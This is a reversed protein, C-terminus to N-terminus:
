DQHDQIINKGINIIRADLVDFSDAMMRYHEIWTKLNHKLTQNCDILNGSLDETTVYLNINRKFSDKDVDVRCRKIGGFKAPMSYTMAKYDQITVARNQSAFQNKARIIIENSDPIELDGIIQQPNYVEVSSIVRQRKSAVM